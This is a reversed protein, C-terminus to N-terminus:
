LLWLRNTWIKNLSFGRSNSFSRVCCQGPILCGYRSYCDRISTGICRVVNTRKRSRFRLSIAASRAFDTSSSLFFFFFFPFFRVVRPSFMTRESEWWQDIRVAVQPKASTKWPWRSNRLFQSYTRLFSFLLLSLFIRRSARRPRVWTKRFIFM